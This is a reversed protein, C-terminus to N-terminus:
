AVAGRLFDLYNDRITETTIELIEIMNLDRSIM